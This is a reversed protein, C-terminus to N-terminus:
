ASSILQKLLVDFDARKLKISKENKHSDILYRGAWCYRRVFAIVDSFTAADKNKKYWATSSVSFTETSLLQVAILCVISFLAFILPTSRIIAQDSWQRQTEMGLHARSEEFMIEISFRNVFAEIIAIPELTIDSSFLPITLVEGMPDKVLVWRIQPLNQKPKDMLNVGTIYRLTKKKGGYGNVEVTTWDLTEDDRM